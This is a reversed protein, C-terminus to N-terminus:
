LSPSRNSCTASDQCTKSDTAEHHLILVSRRMKEAMLVTGFVMAPRIGWWTLQTFAVRDQTSFNLKSKTSRYLLSAFANL